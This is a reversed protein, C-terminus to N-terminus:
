ETVQNKADHLIEELEKNSIEVGRKKVLEKINKDYKRTYNFFTEEIKKMWASM